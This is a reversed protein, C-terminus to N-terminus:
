PILHKGKGGGGRRGGRTGGRAGGRGGRGSGPGGCRTLPMLSRRTCALAARGTRAASAWACAALGIDNLKGVFTFAASTTPCTPLRRRTPSGAPVRRLCALLRRNGVPTCSVM